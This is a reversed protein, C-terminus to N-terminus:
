EKSIKNFVNILYVRTKAIKNYCNILNIGKVTNNKRKDKFFVWNANGLNYQFEKFYKNSFFKNLIESSIYEQTTM